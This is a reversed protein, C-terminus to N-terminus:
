IWSLVEVTQSASTSELYITLTASPKINGIFYPQGPFLTWYDGASVSRFKVLGNERNQIQFHRTGSPLAVAYETDADTISATSITFSELSQVDVTAILASNIATM